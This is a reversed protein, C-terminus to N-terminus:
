RVEGYRLVGGWRGREVGVGVEVGVGMEVGVGEWWVRVGVGVWVVKAVGVGVWVWGM